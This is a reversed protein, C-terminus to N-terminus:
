EGESGGFGSDDSILRSVLGSLLKPYFYTSKQPMREGAGAVDLVSKVEMPGLIFAAQKSGSRVLSIAEQADRTYQVYLQSRLDEDTIGLIDRMIVRHLLNLGLKRGVESGEAPVPVDQKLRLVGARGDLFVGVENSQVLEALEEPACEFCDFASELKHYIDYVASAPLSGIVRHTPLVTLDKEYVNVLTMLAYDCALDGYPATAGTEERVKDRYALATEYRHHGDAIAVTKDSLCAAAKRIVSESSVSSLVHRVGDKDVVDELVTSESAMEGALDSEDAYLGYVCDLNANTARITEWLQSKPKALTFEHPVIVSDEYNHLQVACVFGRVHRPAGAREFYQDYVYMSPIRDTAMVGESIWSALLEGARTFRNVSDNDSEHEEGLILRVFNYPSTEHYARRDEPSIVDYPPCVVKGYDGVKKQCYRLGRFAAIRALDLRRDRSLEWDQCFKQWVPSLM